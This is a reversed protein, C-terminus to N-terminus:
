SEREDKLSIFDPQKECAGLWRCASCNADYWRSFVAPLKDKIAEWEANEGPSLRLLQLALRDMTRIEEEAERNFSCIGDKIYPCAACVDDAGASVEVGKDEISEITDRLNEVFGASYGEGGFFHLCILHHGRLRPSGSM